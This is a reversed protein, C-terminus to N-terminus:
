LLLFVLIKAETVTMPKGEWRSPMCMIQCKAVFVYPNTKMGLLIVTDQLNEAEIMEILEEKNEGDGIIYWAFSYGDDRLNKAYNVIRDLGKTEIHLRCVTVIKFRKDQCFRVYSEDSMDEQQARRRIISSDFLNEITIAKNGYAAVRKPVSSNLTANVKASKIRKNGTEAAQLATQYLM